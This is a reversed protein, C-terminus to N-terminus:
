FIEAEAAAARPGTIAAKLEKIGLGELLRKDKKVSPRLVASLGHFLPFPDYRLYSPPFRFHKFQKIFSFM